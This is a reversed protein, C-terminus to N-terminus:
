RAVAVNYMFRQHRKFPDRRDYFARIFAFESLLRDEVDPITIVLASAFSNMGPRGRSTINTEIEVVGREDVSLWVENDEDHRGNPDQQHITLAEGEVSETKPRRYDLLPTPGGHGVEYLERVFGSSVIDVPTIVEEDREPAVVLRLAADHVIRPRAKFRDQIVDPRLTSTSANAILGGVSNYVATELEDASTFNRRFQGDVFNSVKNALAEGGADRKTTQLFALTPLRRSRAEDYEEEVV